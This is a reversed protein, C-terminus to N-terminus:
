RLAADLLGIPPAGLTLLARHFRPLSFGSGWEAKARERLDLIAMRGWSYAVTLPDRLVRAAAVRAAHGPVFADAEFRHAAEELTMAGTHLGVACSLRTLRLLADRAVAVEFRPDGARFGEELALQETYHAWGETFTESFLTRRVEGVARRLARGHSFHGPAVEHLVINALGARHYHTLWQRRRDLPWSPDPPTVRFWSPGDPEHPAACTMTAVQWHQGPSTPGVLCEGDDYPVLGHRAAWERAEQVLAATEAVLDGAAPHDALLAAVTAPADASADIRRCADQLRARWTRREADARDALRDLDVEVAETVSLLRTLPVRGMPELPATARALHAAFRDLADRAAPDAAHVALRATTDAADRAHDASVGDLAKIAADVADPWARLHDRRAAARQEAPAYDRDYCSPDLNALHLSPDRRHLELEGFRVRLTEEAAGLRAEDDPDSCPKGGLVALGQRVGDPSLDQLVGDYDHLGAQERAVPVMLSCVARLRIDTIM